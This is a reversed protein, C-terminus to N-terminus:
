HITHTTVCLVLLSDTTVGFIDALKELVDTPPVRDGLEYFSIMKPTLSLKNALEKQTLDKQLRLDKIRKSLM